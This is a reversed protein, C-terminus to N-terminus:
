CVFLLGNCVLHLVENIRGKPKIPDLKAMLILETVFPIKM